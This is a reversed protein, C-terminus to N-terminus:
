GMAAGVRQGAQGLTGADAPAVAAEPDHGLTAAIARGREELERLREEWRAHRGSLEADGRTRALGGLYGALITLRALGLLAGRFAQNRELLLDSVARAGGLSAGLGEAMPVGPVPSDELHALLEGMEQAGEALYDGPPGGLRRGLRTWHTRVQRAAVYAERLARHEAPTLETM